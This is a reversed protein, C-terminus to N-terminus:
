RNSWGHRFWDSWHWWRSLRRIFAVRRVFRAYGDGAIDVTFTPTSVARDVGASDPYDSRILVVQVAVAVADAALLRSVVHLVL